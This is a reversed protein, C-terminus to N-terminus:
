SQYMVNGLFTKKYKHPHSVITFLIIKGIKSYYLKGNLFYTDFIIVNEVTFNM